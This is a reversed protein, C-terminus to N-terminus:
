YISTSCPFIVERHANAKCVELARESPKTYKTTYMVHAYCFTLNHTDPSHVSERYVDTMRQRFM